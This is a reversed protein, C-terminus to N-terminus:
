GAVKLMRFDTRRRRSISGYQFSRRHSVLERRRASTSFRKDRRISEREELLDPFIKPLWPGCAFVYAGASVRQGDSMPLSDLMRTGRADQGHTVPGAQAMPSVGTGSAAAQFYEVGSKLAESVVAQVARRALLVGSEPELYAGCLGETSVQPYRANTEAVSLKEAPIGLKTLTEFSHRAYPDGEHELWLVGTQHFLSEGTRAFLEKWASLSHWASRTYIEDAGYGMRMIRSEDGSSSRSNGAGYADILAVRKGSKQLRHATWAGFVGAGVVAVDFSQKAQM